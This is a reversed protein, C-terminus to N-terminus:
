AEKPYMSENWRAARAALEGSEIAERVQSMFVAFFRLNHISVLIPGLMEGAMFFHRIAARPFNRCTYCDCETDIPSEDATFRANRLRIRGGWTFAQANRGNRTPLVCDFMDAGCAVAALIDRPEGIGMVYRPKDAPLDSDMRELVCQRKSAEEGVSLGGVAYGPLDLRVLKEASESRLDYFLGGQQIGFLAEGGPSERWAEAALAAWRASREVARAAHEHSAGAPPCEDLQMIIDAGLSQQTRVSTQPTLRVQSGDVHSRFTVGDDDIDRLRALSFVQYGGSDTLIPGDWGMIRHLGGAAAVTEVGPRLMLHYANALLMQTEAQRLKDPTIGKITGASGVPMFAPTEVAGHPTHLLGTRAKGYNKRVEFRFM